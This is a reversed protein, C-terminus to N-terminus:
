QLVKLEDPKTVELTYAGLRYSKHLVAKIQVKKDELNAVLSVPFISRDPIQVTGNYILSTKFATPYLFVFSADKMNPEQDIYLNKVIGIVCVTQLDLPSYDGSLNYKAEFDGIDHCDAPNFQPTPTVRSLHTAVPLPKNTTIPNSAIAPTPSTPPQAAAYINALIVVVLGIGVGLAIWVIPPKQKPRPPPSYPPRNGYYYGQSNYVSPRPRSPIRRQPM